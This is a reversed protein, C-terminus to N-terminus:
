CNVPKPVKNLWQRAWRQLLRKVQIVTEKQCLLQLLSSFLINFFVSVCGQKKGQKSEEEADSEEEDEQTIVVKAKSMSKPAPQPM